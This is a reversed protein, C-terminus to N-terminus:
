LTTSMSLVPLMILLYMLILLVGIFSVVIPIFIALFIKIRKKLIDIKLEFYEELLNSMQKSNNALCLTQKLDNQLLSTNNVIEFIHQGKNLNNIFTNCIYQIFINNSQKKLTYISDSSLPVNKIIEKLYLSLILTSYYKILFSVIPIKLYFKLYKYFDKKISKLFIICFIITLVIISTILLPIYKLFFIIASYENTTNPNLMVLQPVIYQSIFLLVFSTMIILIIPYVLSSIIEKKIQEKERTIQLANTIAISFSYYNHYFRIYEILVKDKILCNLITFISSDRMLKKNILQHTKENILNFKLLTIVIQNLSESKGYNNAIVKLILEDNAKM